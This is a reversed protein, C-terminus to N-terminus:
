PIRYFSHRKGEVQNVMNEITLGRKRAEAVRSHTAYCGAAACLEPMPVWKGKRDQLVKIIIDTQSM